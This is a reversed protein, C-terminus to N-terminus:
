SNNKIFEEAELKSFGTFVLTSAYEIEEIKALQTSTVIPFKLSKKKNLQKALSKLTEHQEKEVRYSFM